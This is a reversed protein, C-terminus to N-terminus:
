ATFAQTDARVLGNTQGFIFAIAFAQALHYRRGDGTPIHQDGM